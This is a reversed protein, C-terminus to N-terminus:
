KDQISEIHKTLNGVRLYNLAGNPDSKHFRARFLPRWTPMDLDGHAHTGPGFTPITKVQMTPFKGTNRQAIMCLDPPPTKLFAVAPGDGRGDVRPSSSLGAKKAAGMEALEFIGYSTSAWLKNKPM